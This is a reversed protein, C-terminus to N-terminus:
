TQNECEDWGKCWWFKNIDNELHREIGVRGKVRIISLFYNESLSGCDTLLQNEQRRKRKEKSYQFDRLAWHKMRGYSNSTYTIFIRHLRKSGWQVKKSPEENAIFHPKFKEGRSELGGMTFKTLINGEYWWKGNHFWHVTVYIEGKHCWEEPTRPARIVARMKWAGTSLNRGRPLSEVVKPANANNKRGEQVM